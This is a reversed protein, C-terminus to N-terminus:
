TNGEEIEGHYKDHYIIKLQSGEWVLVMRLVVRCMKKKGLSWKTNFYYNGIVLYILSWKLDCIETPWVWTVQHLDKWLNLREQKRESCKWWASFVVPAGHFFYIPMYTSMSVQMQSGVKVKEMEDIEMDREFGTNVDESLKVAKSGTILQTTKNISKHSEERRWNWDFAWEQPFFMQFLSLICVWMSVFQTKGVVVMRSEPRRQKVHLHNVDSGERGGIGKWRITRSVSLKLLTEAM